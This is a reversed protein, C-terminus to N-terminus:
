EVGSECLYFNGRDADLIARAGIPLIQNYKGHGFDDTMVVPIQHKEGVRLLIEELLPNPNESYHGFILGCIRDFVGDQELCSVYRSVAAPENFKEHDELFLLPKEGESVHDLSYFPTQQILTYNVLYGGTLRGKVYGGRLVKWPKAMRYNSSGEILRDHFVQLNYQQKLEQGFCEDFTRISQGYFTVLRSRDSIANLISTSDSYSSIIKPHRRIKEYDLLPLLHTAVEGGTFLLMKVDDDEMMQHIDEAREEATGSFGWATSFLHEAYKVQFGLSELVAKARDASDRELKCCPAVFGIADGKHLRDPYILKQDNEM